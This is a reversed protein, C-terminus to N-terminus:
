EEEDTIEDVQNTQAEDQRQARRADAEVRKKLDPNPQHLSLFIGLNLRFIPMRCRTWAHIGVKILTTDLKAQCGSQPCGVKREGAQLANRIYDFINAKSYSHPCVTSCSCSFLQVYASLVVSLPFAFSVHVRSSWPDELRTLSIPCKFSVTMGGAEIDSDSDSDGGAGAETKVACSLFPTLTM